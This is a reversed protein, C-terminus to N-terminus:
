PVSKPSVSAGRSNWRDYRQRNPRGGTGRLRKGDQLDLIMQRAADAMEGPWHDHGVLWARVADANLSRDYAVLTEFTRVTETRDSGTLRNGLNVFATLSEIASQAAPSLHAFGAMQTAAGIATPSWARRWDTIDMCDMWPVVIEAIADLIEAARNLRKSDPWMHLIVGPWRFPWRDRDTCVVLTAEPDVQWRACGDLRFEIYPELRTSARVVTDRDCATVLLRSLEPRNMMLNAAYRFAFELQTRQGPASDFGTVCRQHSAM